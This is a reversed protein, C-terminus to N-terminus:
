KKREECILNSTKINANELLELGDNFRYNKNYVVRKIGTQIILKSCDFCPAYSCYLTGGNCSVGYKACKTIANSEAHLVEPRTHLGMHSKDECCNEFGSPMGNYGDSILQNDKVIIAGVQARKCYSEGAWALAMKMYGKDHKSM